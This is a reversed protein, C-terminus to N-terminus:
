LFTSGLSNKLIPFLNTFNCLYLSQKNVLFFLFIIKKFIIRMFCKTLIVNLFFYSWFTSKFDAFIGYCDATVFIRIKQTRTGKLGKFNVNKLCIKALQMSHMAFDMNLFILGMHQNLDRFIPWVTLSLLFEFKNKRPL